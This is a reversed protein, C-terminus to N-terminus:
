TDKDMCFEGLVNSLICLLLRALMRHALLLVDGSFRMRLLIFKNLVM